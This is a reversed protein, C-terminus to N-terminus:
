GGHPNIGTAIMWHHAQHHMGSTLLGIFGLARIRTVDGRATLLAGGEMEQASMALGNVGNMTAAHAITMRRISAVVAPEESTVSFAIGGDIAAAAVAARLTVNDMDILHQRLSEIDVRSWDAGPDAELRAVIEGIAAFASQGIERPLGDHQAMMESHGVAPSDQGFASGTLTAAAMALALFRGAIKM